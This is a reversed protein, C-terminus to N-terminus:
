RSICWEVEENGPVEAEMIRRGIWEAVQPVVANGLTKYRPGDPTHENLLTWKDPFGQLRECELPTLRRVAIGGAIYATSDPKKGLRLTGIDQIVYTDVSGDQRNAVSTLSKATEPIFTMRETDSAWGRNGSGGGLTGAVKQGAERGPPPDGECSEPEFLVKAASAGDGLYGVIFVRRRRQAVGFYQADLVRYAYGYGLEALAGLVTGMDRRKNSSLLGPVNEIVVWRPRVDAIIRMFEFFLGSQKGALGARKGALSLDQCPFGGCVLAVPELEGGRIKRIDDYKPVEPWHKQLVKRAFSDIEVQWQIKMGARELGLDLGGIGTFLSGVKM